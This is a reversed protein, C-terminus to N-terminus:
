LYYQGSHLLAKYVQASNPPLPDMQGPYILM